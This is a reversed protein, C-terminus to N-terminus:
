QVLCKSVFEAGSKWDQGCVLRPLAWICDGKKVARPETTFAMELGHEHQYNPLYDNVLYDPAHGYPYAFYPKAKDKTLRNLIHQAQRIQVDADQYNDVCHFNGQMCTHDLEDRATDSAIAIAFSTAAVQNDKYIAADQLIHRFSKIEGLTPHQYSGYDLIPADDFTLAFVKDRRKFTKKGRAFDAVETLSIPRYGHQHLTQLDAELAIHDNNHYDNGDVRMSHYCLVPITKNNYLFNSFPM